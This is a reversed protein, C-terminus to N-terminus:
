KKGNMYVMRAEAIASDFPASRLSVIQRGGGSTEVEGEAWVRTPHFPSGLFDIEALDLCVVMAWEVAPNSGLEPLQWEYLSRMQSLKEKWPFLELQLSGDKQVPLHELQGVWAWCEQVFWGRGCRILGNLSDQTRVVQWGGYENAEFVSGSGAKGSADVLRGEWIGSEHGVAIESAEIVTEMNAQRPAVHSAEECGTAVWLGLSWSVVQFILQWKMISM